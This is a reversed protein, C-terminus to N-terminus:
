LAVLSIFNKETTSTPNAWTGQGAMKKMKPSRASEGDETSPRSTKVDALNDQSLWEGTPLPSSSDTDRSHLFEGHARVDVGQFDNEM